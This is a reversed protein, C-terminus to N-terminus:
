RRKADRMAKEHLKHEADRKSSMRILAWQEVIPGYAIGHAQCFPELIDACAEMAVYWDPPQWPVFTEDDPGTREWHGTTKPSM